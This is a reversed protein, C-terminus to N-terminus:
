DLVVAAEPQRGRHLLRHLARLSRVSVAEVTALLIALDLVVSWNEVYFLDLRRYVSFSPNDRAEVQWLGTIGPLPQERTRLEQDFQLVEEPLAPRPGVLSMMGQLVNVLQPLEDLSTARLIRGVPTVRPDGAVKFLPGNRANRPLLEPVRQAADPVMTRLKYMVFPKGLRGIRTQRIFVPGGDHLKVAAAAVILLPLSLVLGMSAIVLDMARKVRQQWPSLAIKEVYLLPEHALPYARLRKTAIGRLGSSLHVHIGSALFRRVTRNLDRGPLAGAAIVVGNSGLDLVAQVPDVSPDLMPVDLGSELFHGIIGSVEFGLEPHDRVLHYLELAEDNSGIIVISRRFRGHRRGEILWARFAGRGITLLLFCFAAGEVARTLSLHVGIPRSAALVVLTAFTVARGLRVIEVSRVSCVRALYLRQSVIFGFTAALILPAVIAITRLREPNLGSPLALAIGWGAVVAVVDLLVLIARLNIARAREEQQPTAKGSDAVPTPDAKPLAPPMPLNLAPDGLDSAM